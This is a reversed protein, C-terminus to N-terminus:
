WRLKEGKLEKALTAIWFVTSLFSYLVIYITM